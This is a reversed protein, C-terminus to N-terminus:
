RLYKPWNGTSAGKNFKWYGDLETQVYFYGKKKLTMQSSFHNEKVHKIEFVNLCEHLKHRNEPLNPFM